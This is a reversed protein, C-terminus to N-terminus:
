RSQLRFFAYGPQFTFAQFTRDGEIRRLRDYNDWHVLDMSFQLQYLDNTDNWSLQYANEFKTIALSVPPLQATFSQASTATGHPTVITIPGSKANEPVTAVIRLDLNNGSANTFAASVGNLTNRNGRHLKHRHPHSKRRAGCHISLIAHRYLRPAPNSVL